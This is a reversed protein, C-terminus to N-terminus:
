YKGPIVAACHECKSEQVHNELVSFIKRKILIKNCNHCYTDNGWGYVNGAYVYNLGAKKGIDLAKKLTNESTTLYDTFMYDPHFKSVHWPMNKDIGAIFEAIDRLERESDNERPVILTTIEVWVGMQKMLRISELVPELTASCIKRYFENRFSKLDVNAADLYPRIMELAQRNMYGNTM